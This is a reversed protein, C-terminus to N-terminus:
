ETVEFEFAIPYLPIGMRIFTEYYNKESYGTSWEYGFESIMKRRASKIDPATIKVATREHMHGIGFTFIFIEM